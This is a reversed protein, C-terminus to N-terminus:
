SFEAEGSVGHERQFEPIPGMMGGGGWGKQFQSNKTKFIGDWRLCRTGKSILSNSIPWLWVLVWWRVM